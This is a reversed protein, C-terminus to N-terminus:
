SKITPRRVLSKRGPRSFFYPPMRKGDSAVVGLVMVQALHKTRNVGKVEKVSEGIFRNNLCNVVADVTFIKKNSYIKVISGHNKLYSSSRKVGPM